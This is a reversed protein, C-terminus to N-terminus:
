KGTGAVVVWATRFLIKLDLWFSWHEIYEIDMRVWEDFDNVANRGNVQWLCTIGPKISLKRKHWFEYRKLENPGAPRPGVLSMDGKVVTWLQPLEDLSFKRLFRGVPTVRPDDTIKFVPGKMENRDLLQAKLADANPVMTRFKYSSLPEGNQGIVRWPYIVPQKPESLKIAVAILALLPSLLVLLISAVAFDFMRKAFLAEAGAYVPKLVMGALPFDESPRVLRLAKKERFVIDYPVISLAVGLQDCCSVVANSWGQPEGPEASVVAVVEHIPQSILLDGLSGVSGLRKVSEMGGRGCSIESEPGSGNGYNPGFAPSAPAKTPVPCPVAGEGSLDLYGCIRYGNGFAPLQEIVRSLCHRSGILLKNRVGHGRRARSACVSRLVLRYAALLVGSLLIFSFAFLRNGYTTRLGFFVVAMVCLGPLPALLGTLIIRGRGQGLIPRCAGMAELAFLSVPAVMLYIPILQELGPWPGEFAKPAGVDDLWGFRLPGGEKFLPHLWPVLEYALWFALAMVLLDFLWWFRRPIM